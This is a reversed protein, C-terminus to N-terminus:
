IFDSATLTKPSTFNIELDLNGDNNLDFYALTNGNGYTLSSTGWVFGESSLKDVGQTFDNIYDGTDVGDALPSKFTDVGAGGTM